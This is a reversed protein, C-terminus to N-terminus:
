RTNLAVSGGGRAPAYGRTSRRDGDTAADPRQEIPDDISLVVNAGPRQGSSPMGGNRYRRFILLASWAAGLGLGLLLTFGIRPITLAVVAAMAVLGLGGIGAVRIKSMNIPDLPQEPDAGPFTKGRDM